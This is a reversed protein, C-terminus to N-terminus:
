HVVTCMYQYCLTPIKLPNINGGCKCVRMCALVRVCVCARACVCVCLWRGVSSM